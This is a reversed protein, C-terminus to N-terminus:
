VLLSLLSDFRDIVHDAHLEAPPMHHYGFSVVVCRMGAARAAEVDHINDGVLFAQDAAIALQRLVELLPGPDPKRRPLSDGGLVVSFLHNLSLGHLIKNTAAIPKNTAVALRFHRSLIELTEIVGPYCRTSVLPTAEYIEIFRAVLANTQKPAAAGVAVLARELLKAMGDGIMGRIEDVEISRLGVANLTANLASRLDEASDILTGDLDFIIARVSHREWM